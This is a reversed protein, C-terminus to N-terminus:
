IYINVPDNNYINTSADVFAIDMNCMATATCGTPKRDLVSEPDICAGRYRLVLTLPSYLCRTLYLIGIEVEYEISLEDDNLHRHPRFPTPLKRAQKEAKQTTIRCLLHLVTKFRIM